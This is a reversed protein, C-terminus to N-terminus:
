SVMWVKVNFGSFGGYFSNFDNNIDFTYMKGGFLFTGKVICNGYCGIIAGFYLNSKVYVFSTYGDIDGFGFMVNVDCGCWDLM